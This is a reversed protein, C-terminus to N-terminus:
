DDFQVVGIQLISRAGYGYYQEEDSMKRLRARLGEVDFDVLQISQM